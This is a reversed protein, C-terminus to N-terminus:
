VPELLQRIRENERLRRVWQKYQTEVLMLLARVKKASSLDLSEKGAEGLAFFDGRLFKFM